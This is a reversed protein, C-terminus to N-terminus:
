AITCSDFDCIMMSVILFMKMWTRAIRFIVIECLSRAAREITSWRRMM